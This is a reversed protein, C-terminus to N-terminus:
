DLLKLYVTYVSHTREAYTVGMEEVRNRKDVDICNGNFAEKDRTMMRPNM